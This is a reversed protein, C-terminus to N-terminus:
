TLQKNNQLFMGWDDNLNSWYDESMITDDWAFFGGVYNYPSSTSILKKLIDNYKDRMAMCYEDYANNKKLFKKFIRIAQQKKM